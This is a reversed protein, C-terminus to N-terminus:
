IEQGVLDALNEVMDSFDQLKAAEAQLFTRVSAKDPFAEKHLNFSKRTSIEGNKKIFTVSLDATGNGVDRVSEIRAKM